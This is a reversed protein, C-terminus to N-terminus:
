SFQKIWISLVTLWSLSERQICAENKGQLWNYHNVIPQCISRNPPQYIGKHLSDGGGGTGVVTESDLGGPSPQQLQQQQQQQHEQQALSPSTSLSLLLVESPAMPIPEESLSPDHHRNYASLMMGALADISSFDFVTFFFVWIIPGSHAVSNVSPYWSYHTLHKRMSYLMKNFFTWEKEIEWERESAKKKAWHIRKTFM